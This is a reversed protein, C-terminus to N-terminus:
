TDQTSQLFAIILYFFYKEKYKSSNKNELLSIEDIYLLHYYVRTKRSWKLLVQLYINFDIVDFWRRSQSRELCEHLVNM